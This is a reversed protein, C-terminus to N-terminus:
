SRSQKCHRDPAASERQRWRRLDWYSNTPTVKELRSRSPSLGACINETSDRMRTRSSGTLSCASRGIRRYVQQTNVDRPIEAPAYAEFLMRLILPELDLERVDRQQELLGWVQDFQRQQEAETQRHYFIRIQNRIAEQAEADNYRRLEVQSNSAVFRGLKEAEQKRSTTIVLAGLAKLSNLMAALAQEDVGVVIDLTDILVILHRPTDAHPQLKAVTEVLADFDNEVQAMFPVVIFRASASLETFLYWLLSSKGHGADGVISLWRGAERDGATASTVFEIIAAEVRQRHVYLGEDLYVAHRVHEEDEVYGAIRLQSVFKSALATLAASPEPTPLTQAPEDRPRGDVNQYTGESIRQVEAELLDLTRSASDIIADRVEPPEALGERNNLYALTWCFLFYLYEISPIDSLNTSLQGFQSRITIIARATKTVAVGFGGTTNGSACVSDVQKLATIYEAPVDILDRLCRLKIDRELKSWDRAPSDHLSVSAFDILKPLADSKSILINHCNLDGHCTGIGGQKTLLADRWLHQDTLATILREKAESGGRWVQLTEQLHNWAATNWTWSDFPLAPSKKSHHWPFLRKMVAPLLGDIAESNATRFFDRFSQVQEWGGAWSYVLLAYKGVKGSQRLTPRIEQPIREEVHSAIYNRKEREIDVERGFKVVVPLSDPNILVVVKAGSRGPALYRISSDVSVGALSALLHAMVSAGPEGLSVSRLRTDNAETLRQYMAERLESYDRLM